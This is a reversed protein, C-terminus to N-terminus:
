RYVSYCMKDSAECIQIICKDRIQLATKKGCKVVTAEEQVHGKRPGYKHILITTGPPLKKVQKDSLLDADSVYDRVSGM